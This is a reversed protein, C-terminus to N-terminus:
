AREREKRAAEEPAPQKGEELKYKFIGLDQARGRAIRVLSFCLALMCLIDALM